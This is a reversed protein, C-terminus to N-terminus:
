EKGLNRGRNWELCRHSISRLLGSCDKFSSNRGKHLKEFTQQVRSDLHPIIDALAANDVHPHISELINRELWSDKFTKLEEILRALCKDRENSPLFRLVLSMKFRACRRVVKDGCASSAYFLLDFITEMEANRHDILSLKKIIANAEEPTIRAETDADKDIM